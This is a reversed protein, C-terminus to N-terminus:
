QVHGGREEEIMLVTMVVATAALMVGKMIVVVARAVTMVTLGVREAPHTDTPAKSRTGVAATGAVEAQHAVESCRWASASSAWLRRTALM